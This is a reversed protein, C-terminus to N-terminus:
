RIFNNIMLIVIDADAAMLFAKFLMGFNNINHWNLNTIGGPIDAILMDSKDQQSVIDLTENIRYVISPFIIESPYLYTSLNFVGGM